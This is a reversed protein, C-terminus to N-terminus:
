TPRDALWRLAPLGPLFFYEGGRNIVFQPVGKRRQRIPQKPITFVGTGDNPGTIPDKETPAGIFLGQNIWERQVFEFQRNL